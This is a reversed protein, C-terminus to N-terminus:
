ILAVSNGLVSPFNEAKSLLRSCYASWAYCDHTWSRFHYSNELPNPNKQTEWLFHLWSYCLHCFPINSALGRASWISCAPSTDCGAHARTVWVLVGRSQRLAGAGKCMAQAWVTGESREARMEALSLAFAQSLVVTELSRVLWGLRNALMLHLRGFEGTPDTACLILIINLFL